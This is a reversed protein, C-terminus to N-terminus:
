AEGSGVLEDTHPRSGHGSEDPPIEPKLQVGLSTAGLMRQTDVNNYPMIPGALSDRLMREFPFRKMYAPGGVVDVLRQMIQLGNNACVAKSLSTRALGEQVSYKDFLDGSMVEQAHRYLMARASEQLLEVEGFIHQVVPDTERGRQLVMQRAWEIGGGAIGIYVAGFTAIGRAFATKLVTADFHGVPMSHVVDEDPVFLDTFVLDNSQTGRMGLTDWTQKIEVAEEGMATRMLLVRPGHEHDETRATFSFHTAVASNTGFIKRGNVRYGGDAREATVTSDTLDNGVGRESTISAWVIEDRAVARLFEELKPNGTERWIAAWQGVPSVHMNVALATAGDGMALREQALLLEHFDAGYGGLEEPVTLRLYGTERMDEYNEVPFRNERDPGDAREAFTDALRGALEVIERQRDTLCHQM